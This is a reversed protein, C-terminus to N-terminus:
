SQAGDFPDARHHPRVGPTTDLRGGARIPASFIGTVGVTSRTPMSFGTTVFTEVSPRLSLSAIPSVGSPLTWSRRWAHGSSEEPRNLYARALQDIEKITLGLSRLTEIVHFHAVLQALLAYSKRVGCRVTLRHRPM